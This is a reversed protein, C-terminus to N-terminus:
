EYPIIQNVVESSDSFQIYIGSSAGFPPQYYYMTDVNNFFSLKKVDPLGMIKIVDKKKMGITINQSNLVNLKAQNASPTFRVLVIFVLVIAVAVILLIVRSRKYGM